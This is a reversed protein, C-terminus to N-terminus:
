CSVSLRASNLHATFRNLPDFDFLDAAGDPAVMALALGQDPEPEIPDTTNRLNRIRWLGAAHEGFHLMQNAHVFRLLPAMRGPDDRAHVDRASCFAAGGQRDLMIYLLVICHLKVLKGIAYAGALFRRADAASDAGARALSAAAAALALRRARAHTYFAEFAALHRQMSSQRLAAELIGRKGALYLPVFAAFDLSGEIITLLVISRGDRNTPTVLCA